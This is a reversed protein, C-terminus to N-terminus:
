AGMMMFIPARKTKAEVTFAKWVSGDDIFLEGTDTSYFLRGSIEATPRHSLDDMVVKGIVQKAVGDFFFAHKTDTAIAIEWFLMSGSLIEDQTGRRIKLRSEATIGM